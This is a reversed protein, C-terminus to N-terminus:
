EEEEKDCMRILCGCHQMVRVDEVVEWEGTEHWPRTSYSCRRRHQTYDVDAM